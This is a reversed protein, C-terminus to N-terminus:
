PASYVNMSIDTKQARDGERKEATVVVEELTNSAAPAQQQALAPNQITAAAVFVSALALRSYRKM